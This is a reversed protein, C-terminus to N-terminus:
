EFHDKGASPGFFEDQYNEELNSFIVCLRPNEEEADRLEQKVGRLYHRLHEDEDEPEFVGVCLEEGPETLMDYLADLNKGYYDPFDFELALYDQVQEATKTVRFDLLVKKM